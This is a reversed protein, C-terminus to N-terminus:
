EKVLSRYESGRPTNIILTYHGSQIYDPIMVKQDSVSRKQFVEIGRADLLRIDAREGGELNLAFSHQFPNPFVETSALVVTPMSSTVVNNLSFEIKDINFGETEAVIRLIHTGASIDAQGLTVDEWILWGGTNQVIVSNGIETGDLEIHFGGEPTDGNAVKAFIHFTNTETVDVTYELWEGQAVYGVNYGGEGNTEIDVGDSRLEGGRNEADTDSYAVDAGGQDYEEAQIIGPITAMSGNYPDQQLEFTIYDLDFGAQDIAVRLVQQGAGLEVDPVTLLEYTNWDGTGTTSIAGSVNVGDMELHLAGGQEASAFPITLTYTGATNVNVTYEM